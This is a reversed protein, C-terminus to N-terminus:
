WQSNTGNVSPRPTITATISVIYRLVLLSFHSAVVLNQIVMKPTFKAIPTAVPMM